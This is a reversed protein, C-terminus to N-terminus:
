NKYSKWNVNRTSELFKASYFPERKPKRTTKNKNRNIKNIKQKLYIRCFCNGFILNWNCNYNTIIIFLIDCKSPLPFYIEKKVSKDKRKEKTKYMQTFIIWNSLKKKNELKDQLNM